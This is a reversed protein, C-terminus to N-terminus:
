IVTGIVCSQLINFINLLVSTGELWLLIKQVGRALAQLDIKSSWEDVDFKISIDSCV